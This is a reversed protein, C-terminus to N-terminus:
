RTHHRHFHGSAAGVHRHDSGCCGGIVRLNPLLAGLDRYLQGFEDPDGADLETSEDLEAHSMRSANARIGGIRSVWSGELVGSFHTPHACNVMYYVPAGDTAADTTAIAQSLTERSPLRGDTEVTFSVAVPVGAAQAARVVGIAEGSHTMTAATILEVGAEALAEVQVRHCANAEDGTLTRELAYGDGSPGLVGNLLVPMGEAEAGARFGACFAAAEANIRRIATGDLGMVAGWSTGARWTPTDLVLGTDANRALAAYVHFYRTLADRGTESDLLTFAAFSPLEQGENFIMTTELGGDTLWPTRAALLQELRQM